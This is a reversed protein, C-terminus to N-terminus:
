YYSISSKKWKLKKKSWNTYVPHCLFFNGCWFNRLKTLKLAKTKIKWTYIASFMVILYGYDNLCIGFPFFTIPWQFIPCIEPNRWIPWNKWYSFEQLQFFVCLFISNPLIELWGFCKIFVPINKCRESLVSQTVVLFCCISVWKFWPTSNEYQCFKVLKSSIRFDAWNKM